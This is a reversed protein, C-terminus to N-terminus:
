RWGVPIEATFPVWAPAVRQDEVALFDLQLGACGGSSFSELLARLGQGFAPAKTTKDAVDSLDLEGTAADHGGGSRSLGGARTALASGTLM